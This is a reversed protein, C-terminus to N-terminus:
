GCWLALGANKEAAFRVIEEWLRLYETFTEDSPEEAICYRSALRGRAADFARDLASYDLRQFNELLSRVTTPSLAAFWCGEGREVHELDWRVSATFGLLPSVIADAHSRTPEPVQERIEQYVMEVEQYVISSDWCHPHGKIELEEARADYADDCGASYDLTELVEWNVVNVWLDM